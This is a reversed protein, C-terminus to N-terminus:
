YYYLLASNPTISRMVQAVHQRRRQCIQWVEVSIFYFISDRIDLGMATINLKAQVLWTIPKFSWNNGDTM